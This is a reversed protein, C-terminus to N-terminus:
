LLSRSIGLLPLLPDVTKVFNFYRLKRNFFVIVFLIISWIVVPSFFFPIGKRIALITIIRAPIYVIVNEAKASLKQWPQYSPIAYLFNLAVKRIRVFLVVM